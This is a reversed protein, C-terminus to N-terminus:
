RLDLGDTPPEVDDSHALAHEADVDGAAPRDPSLANGLEFGAEGSSPDLGSASTALVQQDIEIVTAHEDDM